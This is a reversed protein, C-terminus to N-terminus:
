FLMLFILPLLYSVLRCIEAFINSCYIFGINDQILGLVVRVDVSFM